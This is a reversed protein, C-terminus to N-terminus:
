CPRELCIDHAQAPQLLVEQHTTYVLMGGRAFHANLTACLAASADQDLTRFPEDLIWLPAALGEAGYLRALVLRKRQGQSLARAPLLAARALGLAALSHLAAARSLTAGRLHASHALNECALLDDKIAAAHGLYILHRYYDDRCARITRGQWRIDGQEVPALGCLARLLTTKGVGNAGRVRLAQGAQLTFYLGSFLQREGRVCIIQHAQLTM